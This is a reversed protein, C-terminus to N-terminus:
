LQFPGLVMISLAYFPLRLGPTAGRREVDQGASSDSGVRLTLLLIAKVAGYFGIRDTSLALLTATGHEGLALSTTQM